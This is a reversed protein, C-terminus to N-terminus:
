GYDLFVVRWCAFICWIFGIIHLVAVIQSFQHSYKMKLRSQCERAGMNHSELIWFISFVFYGILIESTRGDHRWIVRDAFRFHLWSYVLSYIKPLGFNALRNATPALFIREISRSHLFSHIM